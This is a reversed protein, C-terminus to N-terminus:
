RNKLSRKLDRETDRKKITERKDYKKKGRAIGIELKVLGNNNYLSIPVITLGPQNTSALLEQIEAKHLLLRRERTPEYDAPTNGAQYPPITANRLWAQNDHITVYAGALSGHGAKLSKVEFGSLELGATFNDEITYDHGAQRNAILKGTGKAVGKRM